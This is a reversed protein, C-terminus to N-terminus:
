HRPKSDVQLVIGAQVFSSFGEKTVTLRYPGPPLSPITYSGEAGTQVSRSLGTATQTVSVQAGSVVLGGSDRVTGSIQSVATSQGWLGTVAFVSYLFFYSLYRSPNKLM